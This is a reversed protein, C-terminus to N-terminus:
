APDEWGEALRRLEDAIEKNSLAHQAHACARDVDEELKALADAYDDGM